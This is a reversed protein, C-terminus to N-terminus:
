GAVLTSFKFILVKQSPRNWAVVYTKTTIPSITRHRADRRLCMRHDVMEVLGVALSAGIFYGPCGRLISKPWSRHVPQRTFLPVIIEASASKVVCYALVAAATPIGQWPWMFHGMTGGLTRYAMGAAQIAALVTAANLFMRRTPHTHQSDTLRQTVTGATAVLMTANPGLLLLSTFDIVFSLPMTAWDKATSQQIALASTLIAALILGSFELTRHPQPWDALGLFM